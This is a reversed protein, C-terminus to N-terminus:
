HDGIGGKYIKTISLSRDYFFVVYYLKLMKCGWVPAGLYKDIGKEGYGRM